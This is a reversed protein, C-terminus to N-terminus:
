KSYQCVWPHVQINFLLTRCATNKWCGSKGDMVFCDHIDSYVSYGFATNSYSEQTLQQGVIFLNLCFTKSIMRLFM